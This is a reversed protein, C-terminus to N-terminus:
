GELRSALARVQEEKVDGRYALKNESRREDLDTKLETEDCEAIDKGQGFFIEENYVKDKQRYTGHIKDWLACNFGFNVHFYQHHNDHFICDPQWPQWWYAKFNIGSHDVIGHYYLYMLITVFATWHVPFLFMPSVLVAQMHIFEFPHIATVSFATPQKYKHHLKHFHKYLMPHHYMRHHWYTLYDQYIFTVPWSLFYWMWGYDAINYYIYTSGGNMIYCSIISSLTSGILLSFSGLLIEHRELDPSMWKDPQCKWEHALHRRNVYYYWHLFGGIGLFFAYSVFVSALWFYPLGQLRWAELNSPATINGSTPPALTVEGYLARLFHVVIHIWEGRVTAGLVFVAISAIISGVNIPIKKWYKEMTDSYKELWTVAMPDTHGNRTPLKTRTTSAM